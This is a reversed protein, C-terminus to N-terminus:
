MSSQFTHLYRLRVVIGEMVVTEALISITTIAAMTVFQYVVVLGQEM